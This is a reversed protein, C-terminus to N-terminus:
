AALADRAVRTTRRGIVLGPLERALPLELAAAAARVALWSAANGPASAGLGAMRRMHSPTIAVAARSLVRLPVLYPLLEATRPPNVVFDIADRASDSVCLRPAVSEFYDHMAQASAPVIGAPIGMLEAARVNEEFYLDEERASLHDGAYVRHAALFSHVETCHVYLATDPDDASYRKGTVPDVGKVRRHVRRVRAAIAHAQETDGFTVVAVYEATRQLRKLPRQRYDSHQAVGAMALPHFSQVILSRLGGVLGVAPSSHVRWTASGPGFLGHDRRESTAM